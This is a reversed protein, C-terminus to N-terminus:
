QNATAFRTSLFHGQSELGAVKADLNGLTKELQTRREALRQEKKQIDLDQNRIRQELGRLRGGVGGAAKDKMSKIADSLRSALGPGDDTSAFIKMVGDYNNSLAEKLKGEDLRLEGTKANTTIGVDALNSSMLANQLSRNVQRVASDGVIAVPADTPNEKAVTGKAFQHVGNYQSVFEKISGATKEVDHKVNVTIEQGPASKGARLTLGGVLEDIQSGNRRFDVGEFKGTLDQGSVKDGFDMFTTDPDIEVRADAGPSMASVMLRYPDDKSGTNVITARVGGVTDNIRRAVDNLTENPEVVIEHSQDGSIVNMFGFGVPTKDRDPFGMALAKQSRPMSAIELTHSGIEIPGTIEGTLIEPNSSEVTLKRFGSPLKMDDASAQLKGLLSDLTAFGNKKAVTQDKKGKATTVQSAEIALMEDIMAGRSSQSAVSNAMANAPIGTIRM